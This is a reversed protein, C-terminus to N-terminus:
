RLVPWLTTHFRRGLPFDKNGALHGGDSLGEEVAPVPSDYCSALLSIVKPQLAPRQRLAAHVRKHFGKLQHTRHLWASSAALYAFVGCVSGVVFTDDLTM